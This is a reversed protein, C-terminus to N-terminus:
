PELVEVQQFQSVVYYTEVRVQVLACATSRAFRELHPHKRLFLKLAEQRAQDQLEEARGEATVAVASGLDAAENSRNDVLVAVRVNAALNAFKRTERETVFVLSGLDDSAAFAMLSLYPQGGSQTALVAFRQDRLLERLRARSEENHAM